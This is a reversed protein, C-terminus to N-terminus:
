VFSEAGAQVLEGRVNWRQEDILTWLRGTQMQKYSSRFLTSIGMKPRMTYRLRAMSTRPMSNPALASVAIRSPHIAWKQQGILSNKGHDADRELVADEALYPVLLEVITIQYTSLVSFLVEATVRVGRDLLMQVIKDHGGYSAALLANGYEGGEANMDAGRDLLTQAIKDHGQETHNEPSSVVVDGLRIDRKATPAGGGIGVMLGVRINLFSNLMNAAVSAASSLGYTGRLLVAIVVNHGAMEGLTYGNINNASVHTPLEHEKDLFQRAKTFETTMACIWGVTYQQPDSM